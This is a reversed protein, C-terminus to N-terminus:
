QTRLYNVVDWREDDTLTDVCAPLERWGDRVALFLEDDRARDLRDLLPTLANPSEEWVACGAAYRAAGRALSGADPLITNVVVPLPNLTAEYEAQSQQIVASGLALLVVTLIVAGFAITLAAPSLDLQHYLRRAAPYAVGGIVLFVGLLALANVLSYPRSAAVSAADSIEWDFAARRMTDGQTIDLLTWWRGAENIEDGAVVYL